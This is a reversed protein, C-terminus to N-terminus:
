PMSRPAATGRSPHAISHIADLESTVSSRPLGAAEVIKRKALVVIQDTLNATPTLAIAFFIVAMFLKTIAPSNALAIVFASKFRKARILACIVDSQGSNRSRQDM